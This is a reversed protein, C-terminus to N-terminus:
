FIKKFQLSFVADLEAELEEVVETAGPVSHWERDV